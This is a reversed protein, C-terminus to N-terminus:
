VIVVSSGISMRKHILPAFTPFITPFVGDKIAEKNMVAREHDAPFAAFVSDNMRLFKEAADEWNTSLLIMNVPAIVQAHQSVPSWLEQFSISRHTEKIQRSEICLDSCM